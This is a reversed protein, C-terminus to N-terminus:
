SALNAPALRIVLRDIEGEIATNFVIRNREDHGPKDRGDVDKPEAFPRLFTSAM